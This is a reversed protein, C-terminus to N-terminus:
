RRALILDFTWSCVRCVSVAHSVCESAKRLRWAIELFIAEVCMSACRAVHARKSKSVWLGHPPTGLSGWSLCGGLQLVLASGPSGYTMLGFWGLM